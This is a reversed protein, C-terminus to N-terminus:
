SKKMSFNGYHGSNHLAEWVSNAHPVASPVQSAPMRAITRAIGQHPSDPQTCVLDVNLVDEKKEFKCEDVKEIGVDMAGGGQSPFINQQAVKEDPIVTDVNGDVNDDLISAKPGALTTITEICDALVSQKCLDVTPLGQQPQQQACIRTKNTCEGM